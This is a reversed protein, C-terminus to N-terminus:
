SQRSHIRGHLNGVETNVDYADGAPLGVVIGTTKGEFFSGQAFVEIVSLFFRLYALAFNKM